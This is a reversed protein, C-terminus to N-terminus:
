SATGVRTVEEIAVFFREAQEEAWHRTAWPRGYVFGVHGGREPFQAYLCPSSRVVDWPLASGPNFPDDAAAVLM